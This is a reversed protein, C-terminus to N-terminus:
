KKAGRRLRKEQPKDGQLLTNVAEFGKRRASLFWIQGAIYPFSTREEHASPPGGVVPM